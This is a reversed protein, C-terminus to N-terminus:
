KPGGQTARWEVAVGIMVASVDVRKEQAEDLLAWALATLVPVEDFEGAWARLVDAADKVMEVQHPEMLARGRAQARAMESFCVACMTPWGSGQLCPAVTRGCKPCARAFQGQRECTLDCGKEHGKTM